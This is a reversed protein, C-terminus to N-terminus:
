ADALDEHELLRLCPIGLSRRARSTWDVHLLDRLAHPGSVVVAQRADRDSAARVLGRVPNGHTLEGTARGGAERVLVLSRELAARGEAVLEADLRALTEEDLAQTPPIMEYRAISGLAAHVHRSADDVPLLLHYAVPEDRGAHLATLQEADQASLEREVLVVVDDM